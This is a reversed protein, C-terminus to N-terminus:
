NLLTISLNSTYPSASGGVGVTKTSGAALAVISATDGAAMPLVASGGQGLVGGGIGNAGNVQTAIVTRGTTVIRTQCNTHGATINVLGITTTILYNGAVPATFVGTGNNYNAGVDAVETDFIVTYATSDGTVNLGTSSSLFAMVYPQGSAKYKGLNTYNPTQTTTNIVSSTNSFSIDTYKLTGAGTVANTNSSEIECKYLEVITGAGISVSSATGSTFTSFYHVHIGTGASTFATTNFGQCTVNTRTLNVAATSSTSIAFTFSSEFVTTTGASTTSATTSLGSNTIRVHLLYLNGISSMSFFTGTSTIDGICDQISISSSASSSTYSIATSNSTINFYCNKLNVISAASGTVALLFDSNTQLRIGSISVTGATTLTLKGVITVAPTLADCDYAALNVLPSLVINETYTGPQIFVTQPITGAGSAAVAAAYASAITTFNAGDPSGGASVIYRATHLDTSSGATITINGSGDIPAAVGNVLIKGLHAHSGYVNATTNGILLQGDTQFINAPLGHDPNGSLDINKAYVLQVDTNVNSTYNSLFGSGSPTAM